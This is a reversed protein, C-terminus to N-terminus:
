SLNDKSNQTIYPAHAYLTPVKEQVNITASGATKMEDPTLDYNNDPQIACGTLLMVSSFIMFFKLLKM